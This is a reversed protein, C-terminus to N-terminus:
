AVNAEFKDIACLLSSPKNRPEALSSREIGDGDVGFGTLKRAVGSVV